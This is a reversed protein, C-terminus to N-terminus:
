GGRTRDNAGASGNSTPPPYPSGYQFGSDGPRGPSAGLSAATPDNDGLRPVPKGVRTHARRQGVAGREVSVDGRPRGGGPPRASDRRAVGICGVGCRARATRSEAAVAPASAAPAMATASAVSAAATAPLM